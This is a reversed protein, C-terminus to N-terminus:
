PPAVAHNALARRRASSPVFLFVIAGEIFKEGFRRSGLRGAAVGEGPATLATILRVVIVIEIRGWWAPRPRM